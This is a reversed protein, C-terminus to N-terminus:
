GRTVYRELGRSTAVPERSRRNSRERTGGPGTRPRDGSLADGRFWRRTPRLLPSRTVPTPGWSAARARVGCDPMTPTELNPHRFIALRLRTPGRHRWFDTRFEIRQRGHAAANARGRSRRASADIAVLPERIRRVISIPPRACRLWTPSWPRRAPPEAVLGGSLQAAM